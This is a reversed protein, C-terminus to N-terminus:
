FIRYKLIMYVILGACILILPLAFYGIRKARAVAQKQLLIAEERIKTSKEAEDRLFQFAEEQRAIMDLQTQRLEKLTELIEKEM